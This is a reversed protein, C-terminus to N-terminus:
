PTPAEEPLTVVFTAGGGSTTEVEIHGDHHTWSRVPSPWASGPGAATPRDKSGCSSKSCRRATSRRSARGTTSWGSRAAATTTPARRAGAVETGLPAFRLANELLVVLVLEIMEPDVSVIVM